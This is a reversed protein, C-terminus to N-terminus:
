PKTFTFSMVKVTWKFPGTGYQQKFKEMEDKNAAKPDFAGHTVGYWLMFLLDINPIEVKIM